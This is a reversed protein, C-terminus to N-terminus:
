GNEPAEQAGGELAPAGGSLETIRVLEGSAAGLIRDAAKMPQSIRALAEDLQARAETLSHMTRGHLETSEAVFTQVWRRQDDLAGLLSDRRDHAQQIIQERERVTRERIRAAEDEAKGLIEKEAEALSARVREDAEARTRMAYTDAEERTRSAFDEAEQLMRRAEEESQTRLTEVQTRVAELQERVGSLLEQSRQEADTLMAAAKEEAERIRRDAEQKVSGAAAAARSEAEAVLKTAEALLEAHREQAARLIATATASAVETARVEDLALFQEFDIIPTDVAQERPSPPQRFIAM